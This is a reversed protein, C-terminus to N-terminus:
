KKLVLSLMVIFEATGGERGRDEGWRTLTSGPCQAGVYGLKGQGLLLLAHCGWGRGSAFVKENAGDGGRRHVIGAGEVIRRQCGLPVQNWSGRRWLHTGMGKKRRQQNCDHVLNGHILLPFSRADSHM